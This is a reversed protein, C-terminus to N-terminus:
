VGLHPLQLIELVHSSGASVRWVRIPHQSQSELLDQLLCVSSWIRFSSIFGHHERFITGILIDDNALATILAECRALIVGVHSAM